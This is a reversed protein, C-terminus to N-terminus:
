RRCISIFFSLITGSQQLCSSRPRETVATIWKTAPVACNKAVSERLSPEDEILLLRM